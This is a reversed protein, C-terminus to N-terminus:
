PQTGAAKTKETAIALAQAAETLSKEATHLLASTNKGSEFSAVMNSLVTANFAGVGLVIALASSIGTVVMTTRTTKNSALVADQSKAINELQSEIRVMRADMRAESASLKADMEERTMSTM